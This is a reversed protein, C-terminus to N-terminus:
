AMVLDLYAQRRLPTLALIDAERWGYATALTHVDQLTRQAWAHVEAWLFGAIDFVPRWRYGCETCSLDLEVCAAPDLVALEASVADLDPGTLDAPRDGDDRVIRRLLQQHAVELDDEDLVALLDASTPPRVTVTRDALRLERARPTDSAEPAPPPQAEILEQVSFGVDLQEACRPCECVADVTDGFLAGRLRLLELDRVGVPLEAREQPSLDPAAVALLNLACTTPPRQVSREWVRLLQEVGVGTM